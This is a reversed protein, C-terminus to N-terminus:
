KQVDRMRRIITGSLYYCSDVPYHEKYSFGLQSNAYLYVASPSRGLHRAIDVITKKGYNAKLYERDEQTWNSYPGRKIPLCKKARKSPRICKPCYRRTQPRTTLVEANCAICHILKLDGTNYVM